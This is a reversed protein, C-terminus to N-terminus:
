EEEADVMKVRGDILSNKLNHLNQRKFHISMETLKLIMQGVHTSEEQPQNAAVRNACRQIIKKWM